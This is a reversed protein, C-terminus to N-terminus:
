DKPTQRDRPKKGSDHSNKEGQFVCRFRRVEPMMNEHRRLADKRIFGKKCRHCFYSKIGRHIKEHRNLDHKRLFHQECRSCSFPRSVQHIRFHSKM